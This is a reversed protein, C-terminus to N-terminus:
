QKSKATTLLCIKTVFVVIILVMLTLPVFVWVFPASFLRSLVDWVAQMKDSVCRGDYCRGYSCETGNIYMENMSVCGMSPTMCQMRCERDDPGLGHATCHMTAGFRRALDRCQEDRNTCHGSACAHGIGSCSTGDPKHIDAPCDPYIGDCVEAVDCEGKSSRCIMHIDGPVLQCGQCCAHNKDSCVARPRLRCKEDCCPDKACDKGCDCEEGPDIVGNGCQGLTIARSRGLKAEELLEMEYSKLCDGYTALASCIERKTCESVETSLMSTTPSMLFHGKCSCDNFETITKALARISPRAFRYAANAAEEFSFKPQGQCSCCDVCSSGTCSCGDPCDHSAGFNHALEHAVVQTEDRGDLSSVGAGAVWFGDGTRTLRDGSCIMGGWSLGATPSSPCGTM